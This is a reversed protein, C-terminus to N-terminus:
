RKVVVENLEREIDPQASRVGGGSEIAAEFTAVGELEKEIADIFCRQPIYDLSKYAADRAANLVVNKINGGTMPFKSLREFSVDKGLPCEEPIMRKWIALRLKQNPFEFEVKASIRRELAPDLSGLRNTTFIVVGDFRELESLITNIQSALIMGVHSRNTILSDCEDFLIVHKAPKTANSEGIPAGETPPAMLGSFPNGFPSGGQKEKLGDPSMKGAGVKFVRKINREAGGPVQTEIEAAGIVLLKQKLHCAIAEAMLTKGTGPIGYFVFSIATGKEFIKNFGWEEFIKKRNGHQSLVCKVQEKKKDSLVVSEFDVKPKKM